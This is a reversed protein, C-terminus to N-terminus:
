LQLSHLQVQKKGLTLYRKIQLRLFVGACEKDEPSISPDGAILVFRGLVFHHQDPAKCYM